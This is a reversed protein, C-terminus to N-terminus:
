EGNALLKKQYEIPLDFYNPMHIKPIILSHGKTLPYGDKIAYSFSSETILELKSYPNCFICYEKKKKLKITPLINTFKASNM